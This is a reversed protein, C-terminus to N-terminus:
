IFVECCDCDEHPKCIICDVVSNFNMHFVRGINFNGLEVSYMYCIVDSKSNQSKDEVFECRILRSWHPGVFIYNFICM